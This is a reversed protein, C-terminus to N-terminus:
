MQATIQSSREHYKLWKMQTQTMDQTYDDYWQILSKEAFSKAGKLTKRFGTIHFGNEVVMFTKGQKNMNSLVKQVECPNSNIKNLMKEKLM